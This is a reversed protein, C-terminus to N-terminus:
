YEEADHRNFGTAIRAEPNAPWVKDGAIQERVFRDYPKDSNFAGIVYDRYRWIHPRTHDAKLGDSDAYRALDLWHRAWREGYRPSALLGDVVKEYAGPSRDALFASVEVDSPPLGILDFTVRRILTIKDAELSPALDKGELKALIFSDIPTRVWAQRKVPPTESRRGPQFAWYCRQRATFRDKSDGTAGAAILGAALICLPIVLGHRRM